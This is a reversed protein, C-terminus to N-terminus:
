PRVNYRKTLRRQEEARTGYLEKYEESVPIWKTGQDHLENMFKKFKTHRLTEKVAKFGDQCTMDGFKLNQQWEIYRNEMWYDFVEQDVFGKCWYTYQDFQLTWFREFFIKPNAIIEPNSRMEMVRSFRSNCESLIDARKSQQTLQIAKKNLKLSLNLVALTGIGIVISGLAGVITALQSWQLLTM